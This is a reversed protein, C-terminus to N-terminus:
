CKSNGLNVEWKTPKVNCAGLVNNEKGHTMLEKKM